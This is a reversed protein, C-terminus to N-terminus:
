RDVRAYYTDYGVTWLINAVMLWIIDVLITGSIATFAMPIPCSFALGLVVQPFHSFRKVFPYFSALLVAIIAVYASAQNLFILLSAALLIFSWIVSFSTQAYNCWM